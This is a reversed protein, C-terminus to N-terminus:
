SSNLNTFPLSKMHMGLVYPMLSGVDPVLYDAEPLLDKAGYVGSLVGITSGLNASRGMVMDALTDGVVVAQQPDINFHRCIALANHPDPKPLTGADDGCVIADIYSKVGLANLANITGLM